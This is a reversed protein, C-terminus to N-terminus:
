AIGKDCEKPKRESRKNILLLLWGSRRGIERTEKKRLRKDLSIPRENKPMRTRRETKFFRGSM